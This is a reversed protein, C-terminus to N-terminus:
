NLKQRFRYNLGDFGEFFERVLPNIIEHAEIMKELNQEAVYTTHVAQHVIIHYWPKDRAPKSRAMKQYWEESGLFNPDIDFIVGSYDFLKHHIIEGVQFKAVIKSMKKRLSRNSWNIIFM